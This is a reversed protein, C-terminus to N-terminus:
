WWSTLCLCSHNCCLLSIDQEGFKEPSATFGIWDHLHTCTVSEGPTFSGSGTDPWEEADL